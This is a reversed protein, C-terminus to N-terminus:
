VTWERQADEVRRRGEPTQCGVPTIDITELPKAKGDGWDMTNFPNVIEKEADDLQDLRYEQKEEETMAGIPSEHCDSEGHQEGCLDCSLTNGIRTREETLANEHRDQESPYYPM